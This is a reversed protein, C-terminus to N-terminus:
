VIMTAQLSVSLYFSLCFINSSPPPLVGQSSEEQTHATAGCTGPLRQKKEVRISVVHVAFSWRLCKKELCPLAPGGSAIVSTVHFWILLSSYSATTHVTELAKNVFLLRARRDTWLSLTESSLVM